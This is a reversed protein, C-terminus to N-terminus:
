FYVVTEEEDGYTEMKSSTKGNETVLSYEAESTLGTERQKVRVRKVPPDKSCRCFICCLISSCPPVQSPKPYM